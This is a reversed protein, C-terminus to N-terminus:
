EGDVRIKTKILYFTEETGAVGTALVAKLRGPSENIPKAYYDIAENLATELQRRSSKAEIIWLYSESVKVINEPRKLGLARRIEEEALCQNQTWVQGGTGSTPNKVLWGLDHLRDRIFGYAEVETGPPLTFLQKVRTSSNKSKKKPMDPERGPEQKKEAPGIGIPVKVNRAFEHSKRRKGLYGSTNAGNM